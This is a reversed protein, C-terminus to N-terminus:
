SIRRRGDSCRHRMLPRLHKTPQPGRPVGIQAALDLLRFRNRMGTEARAAHAVLTGVISPGVSFLLRTAALSEDPDDSDLWDIVHSLLRDSPEMTASKGM